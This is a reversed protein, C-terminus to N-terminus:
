LWGGKKLENRIKRRATSLMASVTRVGIGTAAAIQATAMQAEAFMTWLRQESPRLLSVAQAVAERIEYEQLADNATAESVAETAETAGLPLMQQAHRRRLSDICAHKTLKVAMRECDAASPLAQWCMWLRMLADQVADEAAEDDEFFSQGM